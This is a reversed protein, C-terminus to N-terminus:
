NKKPTHTATHPHSNVVSNRKKTHTYICVPLLLPPNTAIYSTMASATSLVTVITTAIEIYLSPLCLPSPPPPPIFPFHKRRCQPTRILIINIKTHNRITSAFLEFRPYSHWHLKAAVQSCSPQLQAVGSCCTCSPQLKAAVQSCCHLKAAVAPYQKIALSKNTSYTPTAPHPATPIWAHRRIKNM